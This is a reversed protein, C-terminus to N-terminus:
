QIDLPDEVPIKEILERQITDEFDVNSIPNEKEHLEKLLRGIKRQQIMNLTFM